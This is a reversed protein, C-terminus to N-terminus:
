IYFHTTLQQLYTHYKQQKILMASYYQYSPLTKIIKSFWEPTLQTKGSVKEDCGSSKEQKCNQAILTIFYINHIRPSTREIRDCISVRENKKTDYTVLLRQSFGECVCVRHTLDVM